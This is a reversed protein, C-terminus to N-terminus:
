EKIKEFDTKNPNAGNVSERTEPSTDVDEMREVEQQQQQQKLAMQQQLKIQSEIYNIEYDQEEQSLYGYTDKVYRRPSMFGSQLAVTNVKVNDIHSEQNEYKISCKVYEGTPCDILLCIKRILQNLVREISRKWSKFTTDTTTKESIIETATKSSSGESMFSAITSTSLNLKFAMDRYINEKQMRIQDARLAFQMPVIQGDESMELKVYYDEDLTEKQEPDDPNMYQSPVNARARAMKVEKKEFVKLQDLQVAEIQLTDAIPQGFCFNPIRPNGETFDIKYVGLSDHFTLYAPADGFIIEPYNKKIVDRIKKPISEWKSPKKNVVFNDSKEVETPKDMGETQLSGSGEYINYVIRPKGEDDFYREECLMYHTNDSATNQIVDIYTRCRTVNNRNDVDVFFNDIRHATIYYKMDETRNIKIISSGGAQAYTWAEKVVKEFDATNEAWDIIKNRAGNPGIFDIGNAFLKGTIGRAISQLSLSNTITNKGVKVNVNGDYYRLCPRLYTSYYNYYYSPAFLYFPNTVVYNIINNEDATSGATYLITHQM